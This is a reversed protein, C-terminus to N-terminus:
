LPIQLSTQSPPRISVPLPPIHIVVDPTFLVLNPLSPGVQPWVPSHPVQASSLKQPVSFDWARTKSSVNDKTKELTPLVPRIEHPPHSWIPVEPQSSRLTMPSLWSLPTILTGGLPFNGSSAPLGLRYVLLPFPGVRRLHTLSYGIKGEQKVTRAELEPFSSCTQFICGLQQHAQPSQTSGPGEKGVRQRGPPGEPPYFTAVRQQQSVSFIEAPLCHLGSREDGRGPM